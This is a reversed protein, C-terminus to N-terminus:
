RCIAASKRWDRTGCLCCGLPIEPNCPLVRSPRTGSRLPQFDVLHFFSVRQPALRPRCLGPLLVARRSGAGLCGRTCLLRCFAAPPPAAGPRGREGAPRAASAGRVAGRLPASAPPAAERRAPGRAAARPCTARRRRRACSASRRPPSGGPGPLALRHEPVRLRGRGPPLSSAACRGPVSSLRCVAGAPAEPRGGCPEAPLARTGSKGTRLPRRLAFRGDQRIGPFAPHTEPVLQNQLDRFLATKTGKRRWDNSVASAGPAPHRSRTGTCWGGKGSLNCASSLMGKIWENSKRINASPKYVASSPTPSLSLASQLHALCLPARRPPERLLAGLPAARRPSEAARCRMWRRPLCRAGAARFRGLAGTYM